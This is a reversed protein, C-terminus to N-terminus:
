LIQYIDEIAGLPMLLGEAGDNTRANALEMSKEREVLKKFDIIYFIKNIADGYAIYNSKCFEYWGIEGISRPNYYELFLNNTYHMSYDWKVEFTKTLGTTPSTVIFDIGQLQEEVTTDVVQYNRGEMIQKFLREGAKGKNM